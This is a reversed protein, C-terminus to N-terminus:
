PSDPYLTPISFSPYVVVYSTQSYIDLRRWTRLLNPRLIDTASPLWEAIQIQPRHLSRLQTPARSTQTRATKLFASVKHKQQKQSHTSSDVVIEVYAKGDTFANYTQYRRGHSVSWDSSIQHYFKMSRTAHVTVSQCSIHYNAWILILQISISASYGVYRCHIFINMLLVCVELKWDRECSSWEKLGICINHVHPPSQVSRAEACYIQNTCETWLLRIYSYNGTKEQILKSPESQLEDQKMACTLPLSPDFMSRPVWAQCCMPCIVVVYCSFMIDHRISPTPSRPPSQSQRRLDQIMWRHMGALSSLPHSHGSGLWGESPRCPRYPPFRVGCFRLM